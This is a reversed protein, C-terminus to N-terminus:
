IIGGWRELEMLWYDVILNTKEAHKAKIKSNLKDTLKKLKPDQNRMDQLKQLAPIMKPILQAKRLAEESKEQLTRKRSPGTESVLDKNVLKERDIDIKPNTKKYKKWYSM